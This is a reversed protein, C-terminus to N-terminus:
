FLGMWYMGALGATTIAPVGILGVGSVRVLADRTEPLVATDAGFSATGTGIDLDRIDRGDDRLITRTVFRDRDPDFIEEIVRLGDHRGRLPGRAERLAESKDRYIGITMWRGGRMIHIEYSVQAAM